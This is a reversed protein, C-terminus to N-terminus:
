SRRLWGLLTAREARTTACWLGILAAPAAVVAGRLLFRPLSTAALHDGLLWDVGGMVALVPLVARAVDWAVGGVGIELERLLHRPQVIGQMLAVPILTALAVGVIGIRRVLWMSLAVNLAAEILVLFGLYRVERMAFLAQRGTSQIARILTVVALLALVQVSEPFRAGAVFTPKMWNALVERGLFLLGGTILAAALSVWRTGNRLLSRVEDIQGVAFRGTFHPTFAWTISQILQMVPPILSTAPISYYTVAEADHLAGFLVFSSTYLLVTDGVNVLVNFGGYSFLEKVASRACRSFAISLTPMVRHAVVIAALWGLISCATVVCALGFLGHGAKLVWFTLVARLLLQGIGILNQLGIRQVSYIVTGYLAMPFSLAFGAGMVWVVHRLGEPDAMAASLDIAKEGRQLRLENISRFWDPLRDGAFWTVLAAVVTVCLMLVMATSLTRNVGETDKRAHYAAVYHGVASRVGVDLLGYYGVFCVVLNWVGAGEPKLTETVWPTLVFMVAANIAYGLSNSGVNKLLSRNAAM